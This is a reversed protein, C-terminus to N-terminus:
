KASDDVSDDAISNDKVATPLLVRKIHPSCHTKRVLLASLRAVGLSSTTEGLSVVTDNFSTFDKLLIHDITQLIIM